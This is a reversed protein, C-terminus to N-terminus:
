FGGLVSISSSGSYLSDSAVLLQLACARSDKSVGGSAWSFGTQSSEPSKAKMNSSVWGYSYYSVMM